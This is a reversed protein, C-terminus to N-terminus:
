GGDIYRRLNHIYEMYVHEANESAAEDVEIDVVKDKNLDVLIALREIGEARLEYSRGGDVYLEDSGDEPMEFSEVIPLSGDYSVPSGLAICVRAGIFEWEKGYSIWPAMSQIAYSEGALLSNLSPDSSLLSKVEEIQNETLDPIEIDPNVPEKAHVCYAPQAPTAPAPTPPPTGVPAPAGGSQTFEREEDARVAIISAAALGVIALIAWVGAPINPFRKM